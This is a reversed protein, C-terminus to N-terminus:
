GSQVCCNPDLRCFRATDYFHPRVLNSFRDAGIPAWALTVTLIFEGRTTTFKVQYTEPAKDKLLTPRLLARDYPSRAVTSSSKAQTGPKAAAGSQPKGSSQAPAQASARAGIGMVAALALWVVRKMAM